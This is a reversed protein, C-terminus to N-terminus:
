PWWGQWRGRRGREKAWFRRQTGELGSAYGNTSEPDSSWFVMMEAEKLCDEVTSYFSPIGVRM